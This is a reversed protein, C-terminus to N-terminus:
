MPLPTFGSLDPEGACAVAGYDALLDTALSAAVPSFYFVQEGQESRGRYVVADPPAGAEICEGVFGNLLCAAAFGAHEDNPIVVRYWQM